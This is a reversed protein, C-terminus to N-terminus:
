RIAGFLVYSYVDRLRETLNCWINQLTMIALSTEDEHDKDEM